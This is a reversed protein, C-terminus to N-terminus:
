EVLVEGTEVNIKIVKAEMQNDVQTVQTLGSSSMVMWGDRKDYEVRDCSVKIQRVPDDIKVKGKALMTEVGAEGKEGESYSLELSQCHLLFSDLKIKVNKSFRAKREKTQVQMGGDSSVKIQDVSFGEKLKPMASLLPAGCTIALPLVVTGIAHKLNM